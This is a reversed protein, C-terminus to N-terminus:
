INRTRIYRMQKRVKALGNMSDLKVRKMKSKEKSKRCKRAALGLSMM